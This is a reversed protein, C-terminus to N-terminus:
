DVAPDLDIEGAALANLFALNSELLRPLQRIEDPSHWAYGAV